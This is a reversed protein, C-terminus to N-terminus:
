ERPEVIFTSGVEDLSAPESQDVHVRRLVSPEPLEDRAAERWADDGPQAIVQILPGLADGLVRGRRTGAVEDLLHRGLQRQLGDRAQEAHRELVALFEEVPGVAHDAIVIGLEGIEVAARRRHFQDGVCHLQGRLLRPTGPRVDDRVQDRGVDVALLEGVVLEGEEHDHQRHCAVLGSAVGDGLPHQREGLVGVLPFSELGVTGDGGRVLDHAPRRRDRRKLAGCQRVGFQASHLDLLPLPHHHEVSGGVEVFVHEFVREPEVDQATGVRVEAEPSCAGMETDTRVECSHGDIQHEVGDGVM